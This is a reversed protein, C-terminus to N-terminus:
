ESAIRVHKAMRLEDALGKAVFADEANTLHEAYGDVYGDNYNGGGGKVVRGESAKELARRLVKVERDTLDRNM